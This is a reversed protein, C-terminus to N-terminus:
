LTPRECWLESFPESPKRKLIICAGVQSHKLADYYEDESIKAENTFDMLEKMRLIALHLPTLDADNGFEKVICTAESAPYASKLYSPVHNM